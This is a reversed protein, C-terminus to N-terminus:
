SIFTQESINVIGRSRLWQNLTFKGEVHQQEERIL